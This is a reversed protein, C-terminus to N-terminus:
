IEGEKPIDNIMKRLKNLCDPCITTIFVGIEIEFKDGGMKKCCENCYNVKYKSKRVEM